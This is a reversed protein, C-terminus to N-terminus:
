KAAAPWSYRLDLWHVKRSVGVREFVALFPQYCPHSQLEWVFVERSEDWQEFVVILDPEEDTTHVSAGRFTAERSLEDFLARLAELLEERGEPKARIEVNLMIM